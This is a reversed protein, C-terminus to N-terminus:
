LKPGLPWHKFSKVDKIKLQEYYGPTNTGPWGKWDKKINTPLAM